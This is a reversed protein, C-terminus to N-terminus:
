FYNECRRGQQQSFMNPNGKVSSFLYLCYPNLKANQKDMCFISHTTYSRVQMYLPKESLKAWAQLGRARM